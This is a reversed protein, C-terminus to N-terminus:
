SRAGQINSDTVFLGRWVYVTSLVCHETGQIEAHGYRSTTCIQDGLVSQGSVSYQTSLVAYQMSPVGDSGGRWSWWRGCWAAPGAEKGTRSTARRLHRAPSTSICGRSRKSSGSSFSRRRSREAGNEAWM